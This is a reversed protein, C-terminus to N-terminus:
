IGELEYDGAVNWDVRGTMIETIVCTGGAGSSVANVTGVWSAEFYAAGTGDDAGTCAKLALHYVTQTPLTAGFTFKLVTTGTNQVIFGKRKPNEFLVLGATTGVSTQAPASVDRQPSGEVFVRDM